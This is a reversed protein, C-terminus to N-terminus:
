ATENTTYNADNRLITTAEDEPHHLGFFTKKSRRSKHVKPASLHKARGVERHIKKQSFIENSALRTIYICIYM